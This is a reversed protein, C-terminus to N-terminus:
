YEREFGMELELRNLVTNAEFSHSRIKDFSTEFEYSNFELRESITTLKTMDKRFCDKAVEIYAEAIEDTSYEKKLDIVDQIDCTGKIYGDIVDQVDNVNRDIGDNQISETSMEWPDRIDNKAMRALEDYDIDAGHVKYIQGLTLDRVDHEVSREHNKKREADTRRLHRCRELSNDLVEEKEEEPKEKEEKKEKVEEPQPRKFLRKKRRDDYEKRLIGAQQEKMLAKEINRDSRLFDKADRSTMNKDSSNNATNETNKM